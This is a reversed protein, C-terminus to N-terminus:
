KLVGNVIIKRGPNTRKESMPSVLDCKLFVDLRKPQDAGDLDEPSEELVIKQADVLEKSVERFKGKRGCGCRSPERFKKDLQLVTIINGCSPCEFRATIVQPRVDSKQRVIGKVCIFKELMLSRINRIMIKQSESIGMFRLRFNKVERGFDFQEVALEGARIVEEPNELLEDAVEPSFKTLESFSVNLYNDGIRIKEALESYYCTELFEQFKKIVTTADM